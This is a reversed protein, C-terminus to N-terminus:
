RPPGQKILALRLHRIQYEACQLRECTKAAIGMMVKFGALDVTARKDEEVRRLLRADSENRHLMRYADLVFEREDEADDRPRSAYGKRDFDSWSQELLRRNRRAIACLQQYEM